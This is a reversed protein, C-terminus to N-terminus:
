HASGDDTGLLAGLDDVVVAAGAAILLESGAGRDVGIVHRFGGAAGSEVDSLADEVMAADGPDVRMQRACEVYSDPAPRGNLGRGVANNGDIIVDFQELLGVSELLDPMREDAAVGKDPGARRVM